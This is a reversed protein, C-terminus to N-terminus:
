KLLIIKARRNLEPITHAYPHNKLLSEETIQQSEGLGETEVFRSANVGKDILYKKLAEARQKSLVFNYKYNGWYDTYGIIKIKQNPHTKVQETIYKNVVPNMEKRFVRIDFNYYVTLSDVSTTTAYTTNISTTSSTDTSSYTTDIQALIPQQSIITDTPTEPHTIALVPENSSVFIDKSVCFDKTIREITDFAFVELKVKTKGPITFAHHAILSDKINGEGFNWFTRDVFANPM